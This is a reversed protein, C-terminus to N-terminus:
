QAQRGQLSHSSLIGLILMFCITHRQHNEWFIYLLGVGVLVIMCCHCINWKDVNWMCVTQVLLLAFLLFNYFQCYQQFWGSKGGALWPFLFSDKVTEKMYQRYGKTGIAWVGILKNEQLRLFGRPGLERLNEKIKQMAASAKEEKTPFSITYVFDEESFEGDNHTGMMIFHTAPLAGQQVEAPIQKEYIVQFLEGAAIFAFGAILIEMMSKKWKVKKSSVVTYIIIAVGAILVTARITGGILLCVGSIGEYIFGKIGGGKGKFFFYLGGMLFPICITDTYYYSVYVYLVPNLMCFLLIFYAQKRDLTIEALRYTFYIALQIMCANVVGGVLYYNTIGLIKALKFFYSLFMMLPVNNFVYGLQESYVLRGNEALEIARNYIEELDLIPVLQMDFAIWLRLVFTVLFIGKIMRMGMPSLLGETITQSKILWSWGIVAAICLFIELVIRIFPENLLFLWKVSLICILLAWFGVMFLLSKRMWRMLSEM